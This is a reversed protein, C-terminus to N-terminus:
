PLPLDRASRAWRIWASIENRDPAKAGRLIRKGDATDLLTTIQALLTDPELKALEEPGPIECAVLLQSDHGRLNPVRCVLNTQLQWTRILDRSIRRYNIRQAADAPDLELLEAVTTVGIAHFREATKPGISPADIIPDTPELFFRLTEAAAAVSSAEADALEGNKMRLPDVRRARPTLRESTETRYIIPPPTRQPRRSVPTRAAHSRRFQSRRAAQIWRSLRSREYRAISGYRHRSEPHALFDEIRRHLQSVDIYSLEEPDDVGCDMLLAADSATLGVFCQLSLQSQWRHVMAATIAPDNLQRLCEESETELLQQVTRIGADNLRAVHLRDLWDAESLSSNEALSMRATEAFSEVTAPTPAARRPPDWQAVWDYTREHRSPETADMAAPPNGNSHTAMPRVQDLYVPTSRTTPERWSAAPRPHSLLEVRQPERLAYLKAPLAAFRQMVHEHRTLLILQHGQAAFQALLDATAHAREADINAFVDSLVMPLEIGQRRYASVLAMALSLYVQDRTGRSLERYSQARGRQDDVLLDYRQTIRIGRYIGETLRHLLSSAEHVIDSPGLSGRLEAIQRELMEIEDHRRQAAEAQVTQRDLEELSARIGDLQRAEEARPSGSQLHSLRHENQEIRTALEAVRLALHDRRRILHALRAEHVADTLPYAPASWPATGENSFVDDMWPRAVPTGNTTSPRNVGDFRPQDSYEPAMLLAQRRETLAEILHQLESECRRLHDQERALDHYLSNAQQRQLERCLHHVDARMSSLAAGLVSLMYDASGRDVILDDPASWERFDQEIDEMQYDLSRLFLRLEGEDAPSSLAAQPQRHVHRGLLEERRHRISDLVNHWQQIQYDIETVEQRREELWRQRTQGAQYVVQQLQERRTEIAAETRRLMAQLSEGHRRDSAIEAALANTEQQVQRLREGYRRESSQLEDQLKRRQELLTALVDHGTGRREHRRLDDCRTTLERMRQMQPSDHALTADHTRALDILREISPAQDFGFCFVHGYEDADVKTLRRADWALHGPFSHPTVQVQDGRVGDWFRQVDRPHQHGDVLRLTGGLRSDSALLYRRTAEDHSGYLMWRIFHVITTKGSGAPGYIVNLRPSLGDLQLNSRTGFREIQLATLKV